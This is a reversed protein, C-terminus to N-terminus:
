KAQFHTSTKSETTSIQCSIQSITTQCFLLKNNKQVYSNNTYINKNIDSLLKYQQKFQHINDVMKTTGTSCNTQNSHRSLLKQLFHAKVQINPMSTWTWLALDYTPSWLVPPFVSRKRSHICDTSQFTFTFNPFGTTPFHYQASKLTYSYLWVSHQKTQNTTQRTGQASTTPMFERSPM